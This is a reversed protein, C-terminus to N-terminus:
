RNFLLFANWYPAYRGSTSRISSDAEPPHRGPGPPHRGPQPPTQRTQPTPPPTQRTQPPHHHRIQPPHHHRIQPPPIGAHVSASGRHVSHCVPTFINGQGCSWQPQYCFNQGSHGLQLEDPNGSPSPFRSFHSPMKWDPFKSCVPFTLSFWVFYQFVSIFIMQYKLQYKFSSHM